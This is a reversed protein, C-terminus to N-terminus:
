GLFAIVVYLAAHFCESKKHGGDSNGVQGKKMLAPLPM